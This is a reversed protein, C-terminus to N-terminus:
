VQKVQTVGDRLDFRYRVDAGDTFADSHTVMVVQVGTKDVLDRIFEALRTEYEASVHAFTEDLFLVTDTHKRTLLLVVLRLLFGVTAALGGGRADMVDTDVVTGGPLTSRVVFDVVPTKARTGPVLHFSLEEGFITQLGRTVLAEIQTQAQAQREEGIQALVGGVRTHLDIDARLEAIERQLRSGTTAVVRAEATLTDLQRRGRGLRATLPALDSCTM